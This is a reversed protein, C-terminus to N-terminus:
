RDCGERFPRDRHTPIRLILCGLLEVAWFLCDALLPCASRRRRPLEPSIQDPIYSALIGEPYEDIQPFMAFSDLCNGDVLTTSRRM